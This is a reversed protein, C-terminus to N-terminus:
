DTKNQKKQKAIYIYISNKKTTLYCNNTILEKKKKKKKICIFFFYIFFFLHSIKETQFKKTPHNKIERTIQNIIISLNINLQFRVKRNAFQRPVLVEDSIERVEPPDFIERNWQTKWPPFTVVVSGEHKDVVKALHWVGFQDVAEIDQGVTFNMAISSLLCDPFTSLQSSVRSHIYSRVHMQRGLSLSM